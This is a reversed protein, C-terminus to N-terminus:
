TIYITDFSYLSSCLVGEKKAHNNTCGESSTAAADNSTQETSSAFEETRLTNQADRMNASQRQGTSPACEETSLMIQADRTNASQRQGTSSAFEERRLTNQAAMLKADNSTQEM